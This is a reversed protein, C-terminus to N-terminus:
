EILKLPRSIAISEVQADSEIENLDAAVFSGTFINSDVRARVHVKSPVYDPQNVRFIATVTEGPALPSSKTSGALEVKKLDDLSITM